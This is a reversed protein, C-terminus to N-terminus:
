KLWKQLQKKAQATNLGKGNSIEKKAKEIKHLVILKEIADDVSFEEPMEKITKLVNKKTLMVTYNKNFNCVFHDFGKGQSVCPGPLLRQQSTGGKALDYM